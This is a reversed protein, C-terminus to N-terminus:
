RRYSGTDIDFGGRTHGTLAPDNRQFSPRVNMSKLFRKADVAQQMLLPSLVAGPYQPALELALTKRIARQYGPPFTYSTTNLDAFQSVPVGPTYLVLQTTAVNPIPLPYIRGVGANWGHDYYIASPQPGQLTKQSWAAYEEDNLVDIPIETPTSAGTDVVLMAGGDRPIFPPRVINIDGGSGITYSATGSALTKTTRVVTYMLLREIGMADALQNLVTLADAGEAGEPSAGAAVVGIDQLAGTIFQLATPM